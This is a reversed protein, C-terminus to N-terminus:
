FSQCYRKPKAIQSNLSVGSAISEPQRFLCDSENMGLLEVFWRPQRAFFGLLYTQLGLMLGFPCLM